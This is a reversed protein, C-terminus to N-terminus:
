GQPVSGSAGMCLGRSTEHISKESHVKQDEGQSAQSKSVQPVTNTAKRMM